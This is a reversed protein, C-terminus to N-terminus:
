KAAVKQLCIDGAKFDDTGPGIWFPDNAINTEFTEYGPHQIRLVAPACFGIHLAPSGAEYVIWDKQQSIRFTGQRSTHARKTVNNESYSGIEEPILTVTAGRIPHHDASDVVRGSAGPASTYRTEALCGTMLTAALLLAINSIYTRM